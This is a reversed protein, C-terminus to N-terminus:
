CGLVTFGLSRAAQAQRLDFTLFGLGPIQLRQASALHVADLSRVGLTEAIRSAADATAEDCSVLAFEDLDEGFAQRARSRDSGTLLRALNRRVEVLTICSTVLVRDAGLLRQAVASDPEIVYRKLLAGSDVYLTM